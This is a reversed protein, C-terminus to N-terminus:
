MYSPMELSESLWELFKQDDFGTAVQLCRTFQGGLLDDAADAVRKFATLRKRCDGNITALARVRRQQATAQARWDERGVDSDGCPGSSAMAALDPLDYARWDVLECDSLGTALRLVADFRAGVADSIADAAMNYICLYDRLKKHDAELRRAKRDWRRKKNRWFARAPIPDPAGSPRHASRGAGRAIDVKAGLYPSKQDSFTDIM